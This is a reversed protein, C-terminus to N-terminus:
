FVARIQFDPSFKWDFPAGRNDIVSRNEFFMLYQKFKDQMVM